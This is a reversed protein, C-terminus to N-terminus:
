TDNGQLVDSLIREKGLTDYDTFNGPSADKIQFFLDVKPLCDKNVM